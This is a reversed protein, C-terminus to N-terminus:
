SSAWRMAFLMADEEREFVFYVRPFSYDMSELKMEYRTIGMDKCWKTLSDGNIWYENEFTVPSRMFTSYDARHPLHITYSM